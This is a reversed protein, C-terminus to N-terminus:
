GRAPLHAELPRHLLFVQQSADIDIMDDNAAGRLREYEEPAFRRLFEAALPADADDAVTDLYFQGWDGSITFGGESVALSWGRASWTAAFRDTLRKFFTLAEHASAPLM